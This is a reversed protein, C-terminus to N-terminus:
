GNARMLKKRLFDTFYPRPKYGFYEKALERKKKLTLKEFEKWQYTAEYECYGWTDQNLYAELEMPMFKYPAYLNISILPINCIWEWVYRIYFLFWSDKTSQAQRLHITEHLKLQSDIKDTKNILKVNKENTCYVVGKWTLANIRSPLLWSIKAKISKIKSPKM